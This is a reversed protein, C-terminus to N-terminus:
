KHHEKLHAKAEKDFYVNVFGDVAKLLKQTNALDTTQKAKMAYVLMKHLLELKKLNAKQAKVDNPAVLKIRQTMFYQTVIKQIKNAHEEKNNVWRVLQNYNITSAASLETIKKMSKEITKVHERIMMIRMEDNYIGCPIECHAFLASTAFISLVFVILLAKAIHIPKM